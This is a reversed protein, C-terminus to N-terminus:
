THFRSVSKKLRESLDNQEEISGATEVMALSIESLNVDIKEVTNLTKISMESVNEVVKAIDRISNNVSKATTDVEASINYIIQADEEYKVGALLLLQFQSKVDTDMYDLVKKSSLSLNNYVERIQVVIEDINSIANASQEALKQVENAVVAFGKGQEGVRSAEISANLALLKTQSAIGRITDAMIEIENVIKGDEIARLIDDQRKTYVDNANAISQTVENKMQLSRKQLEYSSEMVNKAKSVLTSAALQIEETSANAEEINVSLIETENSLENSSGSINSIAASSENVSSLVIHNSDNIITSADSIDTLLKKINSVSFNISKILQSIDDNGKCDLEESFNGKGMEETFRM